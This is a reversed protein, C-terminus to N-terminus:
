IKKDIKELYKKYYLSIVGVTPSAIIIGIIGFLGGGIIISMIIVLPPLGVFEGLIKPQVINGDIQQFGILVLFSLVATTISAPLGLFLGALAGVLPGVYPVVNCIGAVVGVVVAYPNKVIATLIFSCCGVLIADVIVGTFYGGFVRDFNISFEKVKKSFRETFVIDSLVSFFRAIKEKSRLIYVSLIIAIVFNFILIGTNSIFSTLASISTNLLNSFNTTFFGTVKQVVQSVFEPDLEFGSLGSNVINIFSPVEKVLSRLSNLLPELIFFVLIVIFGILTLLVSLVTLLRVRSFQKESVVDLPNQNKDIKYFLKFYMKDILNVLPKLIYSLIMAIIIPQCIGLLRFGFDRFGGLIVPTYDALKYLIILIFFMVFIVFFKHNKIDM